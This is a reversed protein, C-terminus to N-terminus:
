KISYNHSLSPQLELLLPRLASVLYLSGTVLLIQHPSDLLSLLAARPDPQISIDTYGLERAREALQRAPLSRRGRIDQSASFEPIILRSAVPRLTELSATIKGAPAQTLNALVAAPQVGAASLTDVLAQFKPQNHAGDLIITKGRLNYLEWRGPPAQLAVQAPDAVTPLHDRKRVYDFTAEAMAWNRRQFLPLDAPASQSTVLQVTAQQQRAREVIVPLVEDSQARVLAHNGHQIIGAKQAAIQPLTDGLVETHDYGIDTIACVKDTRTVVNSGDLLGGLGTEIIAYSVQENAFVWYALAMLREFYTPQLGTQELLEIYKNVYRLFPKEPLPTGGIQLRENIAAIHPSVTLGTRQGAAELLGRIFYSTSTKGATGAVHIVRVQDQPNGLHAMLERMRDLQYPGDIRSPSYAVFADTVEALSRLPKM